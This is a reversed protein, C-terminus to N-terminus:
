PAMATSCRANAAVFGPLPWRLPEQTAEPRSEERYHTWFEVWWGPPQAHDGDWETPRGTYGHTVLSGVYDAHRRDGALSV